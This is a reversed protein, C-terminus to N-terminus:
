EVRRKVKTCIQGNIIEYDSIEEVEINKVRSKSEKIEETAVELEVIKKSKRSPIAKGKAKGKTDKGEEKLEEQKKQEAIKLFVNFDDKSQRNPIISDKVYEKIMDDDIYLSKAWLREGNNCYLFTRKPLDVCSNDDAIVLSSASNPLGFGIRINFNAKLTAKMSDTDSRQLCAFTFIGVKRGKRILHSLKEYFVVKLEYDPDLKTTPMYDTFEDLVIYNYCMRKNNFKKNYERINSVNNSKFLKNRKEYLHILHEMTKIGESIDETYSKTQKCDMFEKFDNSNNINVYYFNIDRDTCSYYLNSVVLKMEETKGKGTSGAFLVNPNDNVNAKIPNFYNDLGFYLEYPKLKIPKFRYDDSIKNRIIRLTSTCFNDNLEIEIPCKYYVQLQEQLKKLDEFKKDKMSVIFKTGYLTEGGDILLFGKEESRCVDNFTKIDEKVTKTKWKNNKYYSECVRYTAVGATAIIFESIM